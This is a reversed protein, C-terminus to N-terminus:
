VSYSKTEDQSWHERNDANANLLEGGKRQLFGLRPPPPVPLPLYKREGATASNPPSPPSGECSFLLHALHAAEPLPVSAWYTDGLPPPPLSRHLWGM